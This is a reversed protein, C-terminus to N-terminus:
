RRSADEHLLRTLYRAVARAASLNSPYDMRTPGMVGIRATGIRSDYDSAVISADGLGFADNERGISAALGHDDAQMESLLRLLTVQEETSGVVLVRDAIRVVSVSSARGMRQRAVVEILGNGQGLGRKQAVRAAFWLVAAIFALSLVLRIVM